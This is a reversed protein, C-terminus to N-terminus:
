PIRSHPAGLLARVDDGARHYDMREAQDIEALIDGHNPLTSDWAARLFRYLGAHADQRFSIARWVTLAGAWSERKAVRTFGAAIRYAAQPSLSGMKLIRDTNDALWAGTNASM